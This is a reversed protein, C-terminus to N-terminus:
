RGFFWPGPKQAPDNTLFGALGFRDPYAVSVLYLGNPPATMGASIRARAALVEKTWDTDARGAGIEMLVGAMNRVMHHLFANATVSFRLLPGWREIGVRTVRRIPSRSQCSAARFSSFDHEGLWVQAAEHMREADLPRYCWTVQSRLLAPRIPTNYIFYHYSRSLASRRADFDPAVEKAWLVRISPPLHTNTGWVWARDLRSASTEFHVVQLVAHVGADTRGACCVTIPQDAVRSLATEVWEQVTPVSQQRQWGSFASGDYEIGLAMVVGM